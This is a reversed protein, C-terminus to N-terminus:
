KHFISHLMELQSQYSIEFRGKPGPLNLVSLRYKEAKLMLHELKM